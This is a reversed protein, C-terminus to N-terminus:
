PRSLRDRLARAPRFGCRPGRAGARATFTGFGPWACRGDAALATAIQEAVEHMVQGIFKRAHREGTARWVHAVLPDRGGPDDLEVPRGALRALLVGDASLRVSVSPGAQVPEGTRPNRARRPPRREVTLLGLGPLAQRGAVALGEAAGDFLADLLGQVHSRALEPHRAALTAVLARKSM